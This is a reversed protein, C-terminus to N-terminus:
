GPHSTATSPCMSLFLHHNVQQCPKPSPSPPPAQLVRLFSYSVHSFYEFFKLRYLWADMECKLSLLNIAIGMSNINCIPEIIDQVQHGLTFFYIYIIIIFFLPNYWLNCIHRDTCKSTTETLYLLSCKSM